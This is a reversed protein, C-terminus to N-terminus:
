AKEDPDKPGAHEHAARLRLAIGVAGLLAGAALAWATQALAATEAAAGQGVAVVVGVPALLGAVFWHRPDNAPKVPLSACDPCELRWNILFLAQILAPVGILIERWRWPWWWAGPLRAAAEGLWPWAGAGQLAWRPAAVLICAGAALILSLLARYSVPRALEEKWDEPDLTYLTLLAIVVPGVLATVAWRRSLPGPGLAVFAHAVAGAAAALVATAALGALIQPVPAAVPWKELTLLRARRLVLLGGRAAFLPGLVGVLWAGALALVRRGDDAPLPAAAAPVGLPAGHQVLERLAARLELFNEEMGRAPDLRAVLLRRPRGLARRLLTSRPQGVRWWAPELGLSRPPGSPDALIVGLESAAAVREPDYGRLELVPSSEPVQLVHYGAITGTSPSLGQRAMAQLLHDFLRADKTWFTDPKLTTAPPLLGAAKWREVEARDFRLIEGRRIAEQLPQPRVIAAGVGMAKARAWFDKLPAGAQAALEAAQDSEIAVVVLRSADYDDRAVLFAAAAAAAALAAAGLASRRESV